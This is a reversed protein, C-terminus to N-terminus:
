GDGAHTVRYIADAQDDSILLAGDPAVLVDAPRGWHSQGRLWGTVFPRYDVAAGTEDLVVRTVRYGIKASRNWSGHEAIFIDGRYREPFAAGDYFALGLPAVHPGLPQAPAAFEACDRDRGFSPDRVFGAHCYPFGFHLGAQPARNLECPPSDDGLHDRGNDTFWLEGTQPHFALGVSNRVGHAFVEREAGDANMRLITGYPASRECVNCPAGVSVYLKGGPGFAITRLGHHRDTPFGDAAVVPDPPDDLRSEIADYRLIRARAGVYLAGGRFAVGAPAPLGKAVLRREEARGDGDRDTLAYVNGAGRSGVFVTGDAGLAMARANPVGDAFVSVAFGPPATLREVPPEDARAGPAVSLCICSLFLLVRRTM